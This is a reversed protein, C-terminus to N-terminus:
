TGLSIPLFLNNWAALEELNKYTYYNKSLRELRPDPFVIPSNATVSAPQGISPHMAALEQAAWGTPHLLMQKAAPV